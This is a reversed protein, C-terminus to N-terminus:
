TKALVSLREIRASESKALREDKVLLAHAARFYPKSEATRGLALLCEAIEEALYGDYHEHELEESGLDFTPFYQAQIAFQEDLAEQQRGLSRKCRAVAWRAIRLAPEKGAEERHALGKEFYGLATEHEGMDHYTWAINNSLAGVWQRAREQRSEEIIRFGLLNWELAHSPEEVIAVMHAADITLYDDGLRRAEDFARLFLERAKQPTGGSNWVRGRELLYRVEVRPAVRPLLGAVLDLTEHADEFNSRLGQTRAVQTLAEARYSEDETEAIAERFRKESSEPDSFDWLDDLSHLTEM